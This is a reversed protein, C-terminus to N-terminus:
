PRRESSVHGHETEQIDVPVEDLRLARPRKVRCRVQPVARM